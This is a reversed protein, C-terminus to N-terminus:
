FRDLASVRIETQIANSLQLVGGNIKRFPTYKGFKDLLMDAELSPLEVFTAFETGTSMPPYYVDKNYARERKKKIKGSSIGELLSKFSLYFSSDLYIQVLGLKVSPFADAWTRLPTLDEDKLTFSLQKGCENLRHNYNYPSFESEIALIAKHVIPDARMDDLEYVHEITERENSSLISKDFVLVDPRKGHLDQQPLERANMEQSSWFATGDTIGYPVARIGQEKNIAEIIKKEAWAGELWRASFDSGRPKKRKKNM